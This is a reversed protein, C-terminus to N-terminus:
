GQNKHKWFQNPLFFYKGTVGFKEPIDRLSSIDYVLDDPQSVFHLVRAKSSIAPAFEKLDGLADYSSLIIIDSGEVIKSIFGNRYDVEKKSFMEPM